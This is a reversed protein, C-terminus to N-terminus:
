VKFRGKLKTAVLLFAPVLLYTFAGVGIQLNLWINQEEGSKWFWENIVLISVLIIIFSAAFGMRTTQRVGKGLLIRIAGYFLLIFISNVFVLVFLHVSILVIDIREYAPFQLYRVMDLVPYKTKDLYNSGFIIAIIYILSSIRLSLDYQRDDLIKADKAKAKALSDFM